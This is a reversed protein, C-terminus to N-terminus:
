YVTGSSTSELQAVLDLDVTRFSTAATRFAAALEDLCETLENRRRDWRRGLDDFARDLQPTCSLHGGDLATYSRLEGSTESLRAALNELFVTDVRIESM